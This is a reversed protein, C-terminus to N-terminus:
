ENNAPSGRTRGLEKSVDLILQTIAPCNYRKSWMLAEEVDAGGQILVRVYNTRATIAASTLPSLNGSDPLHTSKQNVWEPHQIVTAQFEEIPLQDMLIILPSADCQVGTVVKEVKFGCGCGAILFYFPIYGFVVVSRRWRKVLVVSVRILTEVNM